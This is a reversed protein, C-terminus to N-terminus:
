EHGLGAAVMADPLRQAFDLKNDMRRVTFESQM